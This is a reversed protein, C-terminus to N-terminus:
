IEWRDTMTQFTRRSDRYSMDYFFVMREDITLQKYVDAVVLFSEDATSLIYEDDFTKKLFVKRDSGILYLIERAELREIFEEPKM